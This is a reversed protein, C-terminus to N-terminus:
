IVSLLEEINIIPVETEACPNINYISVHRSLQKLLSNMIQIRHRKINAQRINVYKPRDYFHQWGSTFDVGVLVINKAGQLLAYNVSPLAITHRCCLQGPTFKLEERNTWKFTDELIVKEPDPEFIYAVEATKQYKYYDTNNKGWGLIFKSGRYDRFLTNKDITTIFECGKFFLPFVNLGISRFNKLLVPIRDKVQNVYPSCGFVIWTDEPNLGVKKKFIKPAPQQGYIIM